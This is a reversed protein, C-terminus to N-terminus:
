PGTTVSGASGKGFEEEYESIAVAAAIAAEQLISEPDGM